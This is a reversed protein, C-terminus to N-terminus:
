LDVDRSNLLSSLTAREGIYEDKVSVRSPEAVILANLFSTIRNAVNIETSKMNNIM